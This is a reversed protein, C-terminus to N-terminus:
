GDQGPECEEGSEKKVLLRSGGCVGPHRRVDADDGPGSADDEDDLECDAFHVVSLVGGGGRDGSLIPVVVMGGRLKAQRYYSYAMLLSFLVPIVQSM